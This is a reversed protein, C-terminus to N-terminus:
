YGEKGTCTDEKALNREEAWSWSIWHQGSNQLCEQCLPLWSPQHRHSSTSAKNSSSLFTICKLLICLSPRSVVPPRTETPYSDNTLRRGSSRGSPRGVRVIWRLQWSTIYIVSGSTSPSAGNAAIYLKVDLVWPVNPMWFILHFDNVTLPQPQHAFYQEQCQDKHDADDKALYWTSCLWCYQLGPNVKETHKITHMLQHSRTNFANRAFLLSWCLSTMSCTTTWGYPRLLM